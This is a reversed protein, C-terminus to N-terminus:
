RHTPGNVFKSKAHVLHSPVAQSIIHMTHHHTTPYRVITWLLPPTHLVPISILMYTVLILIYMQHQISAAPFTIAEGRGPTHATTRLVLHRKPRKSSILSSSPSTTLTLRQRSVPRNNHRGSEYIYQLYPSRKYPDLFLHLYNQMTPPADLSNSTLIYTTNGITSSLFRDRPILSSRVSLLIHHFIVRHSVNHINSPCM